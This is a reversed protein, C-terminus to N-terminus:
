GNCSSTRLITSDSTLLSRAGSSSCSFFSIGSGCRTEPLIQKTGFRDNKKTADSGKTNPTVCSRCSQKQEHSKFSYFSRLHVIHKRFKKDLRTLTTKIKQNIKQERDSHSHIKKRTRMVNDHTCTSCPSSRSSSTIVSIVLKRM